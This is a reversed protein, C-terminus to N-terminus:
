LFFFTRVTDELTKIIREALGDTQPHYATSLSLKTGLLMHLNTELASMFKTYRDSIINAFLGTHFILRNWILLGRDMATDDKHCPLFIPTRSYREVIVFCANYSKEGGPPLATVWYKHAVEWPTSKEQIYIM